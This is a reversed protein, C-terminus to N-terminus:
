QLKRLRGFIHRIRCDEFSVQVLYPLNSFLFFWFQFGLSIGNTTRRGNEPPDRGRPLLYFRLFGTSVEHLPLLIM